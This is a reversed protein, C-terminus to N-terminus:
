VELKQITGTQTNLEINKEYYVLIYYDMTQLSYNKFQVTIVKAALDNEFSQCSMDIVRYGYAGNEWDAMSILGNSVPTLGANVAEFKQFTQLYNEYSYQLNSQYVNSNGIRVNFQQMASGSVYASLTAPESSFTSNVASIQATGNSAASIYPCIVIKRIKSFSGSIIQNIAASPPQNSILQCYCDDWVLTKIENKMYLEDYQKNLKIYCAQFVCQTLDTKGVTNLASQVVGLCTRITGTGAGSYAPVAAAPPNAAVANAAVRVGILSIGTGDSIGTLDATGIESLQYPCCQQQNTVSVGTISWSGGTASGACALTHTYISNINLNFSLYQSLNKVLPMEAFFPHIDCLQFSAMIYYNMYHMSADGANQTLECYDQRNTKITANSGVGASLMQPGASLYNFSSKKMRNIRNANKLTSLGSTVGSSSDQLRNNCVGTVTNFYTSEPTEKAFYYEDGRKLANDSSWSNLVSYNIKMNECMDIVVVENGSVKYNIKDFIHFSGSKLSAIFNNELSATNSLLSGNAAAGAIVTTTNHFEVTLNLPIQIFSDKPSFYTDGSNMNELNFVIKNSSSYSSGNSDVVPVWIKQQDVLSAGDYGNLSTDLIYSNM